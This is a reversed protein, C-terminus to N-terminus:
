KEDKEEQDNKNNKVLLSVDFMPLNLDNPLGILKYSMMGRTAGICVELLDVMLDDAIFVTKDEIKIADNNADEFEFLTETTFKFIEKHKTKVKYQYLVTISMALTKDKPFGKPTFGIGLELDDHNFSAIIEDNLNSSISTERISIFRVGVGIPKESM